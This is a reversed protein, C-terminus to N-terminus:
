LRAKSLRIMFFDSSRSSLFAISIALPMALKM